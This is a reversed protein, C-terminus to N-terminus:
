KFFPMHADIFSKETDNWNQIAANRANNVINNTQNFSNVAANIEKVGKNYADVDEKTRDSASKSEFAKKMKEFNEEKLFFDTLKPIDTEATKKYFLLAQKCSLMLANDGEFPQITQLAQLGENAYQLLANRSQEIDNVKKNNLANVLKADQWNCKFFLLFIKDHYQNLLGAKEMKESMESKTDVLTVNYKAAFGNYAKTYVDNAEKLKEKTKEQLLLYAQMEDFSQEAIEEM